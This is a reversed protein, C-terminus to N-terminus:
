MFGGNGLEMFILIMGNQSSLAAQLPKQSKTAVFGLVGVAERGVGPSVGEARRYFGM